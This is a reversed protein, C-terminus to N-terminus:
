LSVGRQRELLLFQEDKKAEIGQSAKQQEELVLDHISGTEEVAPEFGATKSSRAATEKLQPVAETTAVSM